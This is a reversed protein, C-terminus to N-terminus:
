RLVHVSLYTLNDEIHWHVTVVHFEVYTARLRVFTIRIVNGGGGGGGWGMGELMGPRGGGDGERILATGQILIKTYVGM